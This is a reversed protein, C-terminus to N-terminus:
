MSKGSKKMKAADKMAQKYKYNPNKALNTRYVQKVFNVWSKAGTSMKRTKRRGGSQAAHKNGGSQTQHKNGGSQTQHKNGGVTTTPKAGGLKKTGGLKKSGGVTHKKDSGGKMPPLTSTNAASAGAAVGKTSNDAAVFDPM